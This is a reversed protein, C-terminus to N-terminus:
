AKYRTKVSKEYNEVVEILNDIKDVIMNIPLDQEVHKVSLDENLLSIRYYDRMNIYKIEIIGTFKFGKVNFRIGNEIFYLNHTGWSMIYTPRSLLVSLIINEPKM